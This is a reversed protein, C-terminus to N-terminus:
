EIEGVRYIRMDLNEDDSRSMRWVSITMAESSGNVEDSLSPYCTPSYPGLIPKPPPHFPVQIQAASTIRQAQAPFSRLLYRSSFFSRCSHELKSISTYFMYILTDTRQQSPIRTRITIRRRNRIIRRQRRELKVLHPARDIGSSDNENPMCGNCTCLNKSSVRTKTRRHRRRQKPVNFKPIYMSGDCIFLNYKAPIRGQM